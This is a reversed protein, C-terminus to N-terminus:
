TFPTIFLALVFGALMYPFLPTRFTNKKDIIHTLRKRNLFRLDTLYYFATPIMFVSSGFFVLWIFLLNGHWHPFFFALLALGKLDAAGVWGIVYLLALFVIVLIVNGVLKPIYEKHVILELVFFTISFPLMIKWLKNPVTMTRHDSIAACVLIGIALFAKYMEIM